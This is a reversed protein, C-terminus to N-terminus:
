NDMMLGKKRNDGPVIRAMIMGAPAPVEDAVFGQESFGYSQPQSTRSVSQPSTAFHISMGPLCQAEPIGWFIQLSIV